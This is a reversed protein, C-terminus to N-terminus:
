WGGETRVPKTPDNRRDETSPRYSDRCAERADYWGNAYGTDSQLRQEDRAPLSKANAGEARGYACGDAYGERYAPPRDNVGAPLKSGNTTGCGAALLMTTFLLSSHKM